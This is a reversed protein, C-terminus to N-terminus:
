YDHFIQRLRDQGTTRYWSHSTYVNAIFSIINYWFPNAEYKNLLKLLFSRTFISFIHKIGQITVLKEDNRDQFVRKFHQTPNKLEQTYVIHVFLNM